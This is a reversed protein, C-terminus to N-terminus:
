RHKRADEIATDIRRINAWDDKYNVAVFGTAGSAGYSDILPTGQWDFETLLKTIAERLQPPLNHGYGIAVPPFRESEYLTRVKEPDIEGGAVMRDFLDSAVPAADTKGDAVDSASTDHGMSFGYSYDREPLIDQELLLVLAAKFGSNSNPRVFTIKYKNEGKLDSLQKLPSAAPVLLKMKYAFDGDHGFTSVPIFGGATVALPVSGTNFATVHLEGTALAELQEDVSKFHTFETPMEALEALAELLPAWTAADNGPNESAVYAFVLKEPAICEAEAPFDALMDGDADVFKILDAPTRAVNGLLRSLQSAELEHQASSPLYTQLAWAGAVLAIVIPVAVKLVRAPSLDFHQHSRGAGSNAAVPADSEPQSM